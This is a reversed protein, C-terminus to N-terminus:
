FHSGPIPISLSEDPELLDISSSLQHGPNPASSILNDMTLLHMSRMHTSPRSRSCWVLWQQHRFLVVPCRIFTFEKVAITSAPRASSCHLHILIAVGAGAIQLEHKSNARLHPSRSTRGPTASSGRFQGRKSKWHGKRIPLCRWSLEGLNNM